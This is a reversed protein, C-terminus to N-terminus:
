PAAAAAERRATVVWADLGQDRGRLDLTRQEVGETGLGVAMAADASVLIEGAGGLGSLRAAANVTDGLATFDRADGEGISGVFSLGTHVGAGIPIWPDDGDKGTDALLHQAAEVAREAPRSGAFGRIFLAVVGDGVFKDVVGDHEDIV